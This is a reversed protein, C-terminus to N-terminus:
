SAKWIAPELAGLAVHRLKHQRWLIIPREFIRPKFQIIGSLSTPRMANCQLHVGLGFHRNLHLLSSSLTVPRQAFFFFLTNLIFRNKREVDEITYCGFANLGGEVDRFIRDEEV